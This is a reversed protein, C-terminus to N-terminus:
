TSRYTVVELHIDPRLFVVKQKEGRAYGLVHAPTARGDSAVM